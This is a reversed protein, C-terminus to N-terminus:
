IKQYLEHNTIKDSFLQSLMNAANNSSGKIHDVRLTTDCSATLLWINRLGLALLEDRTKGTNVVQVVALKDCYFRVTIHAWKHGWLKLAKVLNFM